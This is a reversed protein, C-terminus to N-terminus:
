LDITTPAPKVWMDVCPEGTKTSHRSLSDGYPEETRKLLNTAAPSERSSNHWPRNRVPICFTRRFARLCLPDLPDVTSCYMRLANSPSASLVPESSMLLMNAQQNIRRPYADLSPIANRLNEGTGTRSTGCTKQNLSTTSISPSRISPELHHIACSM